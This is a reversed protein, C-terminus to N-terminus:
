EAAINPAAQWHVFLARIAAPKLPKELVHIDAARARERVEPSRDATVLVAPLARGLKQRLALIAAIGEGDDLHYDAVLVDPMFGGDVLTEAEPLGCATAIRCGWSSFLVRMGDAVVPENDIALVALNELTGFSPAALDRTPLNTPVSDAIPLEVSFMSGHGPVSRLTVKHDLVRAIREVISLGLGLGRAMHAADLRQFERFIIRHQSTPIGPGTDWVEVKLTGRETRRCGVLVRGAPTYKVANSVFNQLLRRLLRRDSRVALSSRVFTLAIGKEEAMLEFERQLPVLLDDIRFNSLEAKLAGADLRAIDLLATLIEEVTDLSAQVNEALSPDGERRDREALATAYLRAANLPQLIDHSAAALFRTKSANADEAEGKARSLEQNLRELEETREKVRRELTENARALEEETSVTDTIDAYTTVIGGDPLRNSRIEIVNGSPFLKLRVPARDDMLSEIRAALLQEPHGDGYAGRAINSRVIEDLGVGVRMLYPPLNYIDCFARNWGMLRLDKDFITIGQSAHDLGHQLLDRNYQIAASADDLLKLAATASVNRRLLLSLVLRSSAAGIASALLHETQRLLHLDAESDDALPTGRATTFNAFAREAREAGLYRAVTSRLEAVSVASRRLRLNQTIAPTGLYNKSTFLQAQLTEMVNAPRMFSFGIYATVNIALSWLVGHTLQPLETGFLATPRLATIGFPGEAILEAALGGTPALSPLLLTYLWVSFGAVLGAGAGRATGRRWFLGGFFAPAIQAVAAFSLFGIAALQAEGAMRFYAYGLFIITVIAIRRTVLVFTGLDGMTGAADRMASQLLSGRDAGRRRLWGRRRLVFPMVLDNSIMIALAVSDVIVMATAASLGGIFAILAIGGANVSLPLALVTMDHDITGPQFLLQGAFALPLVFLNILVLYLPFLWSATRVDRLNRNEVIMMHFQRPLLLAAASSLIIMALFPLPPSTGKTVSHAHEAAAIRDFIDSVGDFMWYSVFLGVTLFAFLKVASEVAIALVLGNQPKTADIHRTGFAVSFTALVCAVVFALDGFIMTSSSLGTVRSADLFATLSNSVAKLQLAIYPVTGVVAILTVFAAIRDDKGYRAAVFDAITTINQAKALRVIHMVLRTGLGIVLIPGIYITLFDLGAREALGVGGFFTWSTCYVALALAYILAGSRGVMLGKGFLTGARAVAFLGSLYVLASLVVAWDAIM